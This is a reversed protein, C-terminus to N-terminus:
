KVNLRCMPCKTSNKTLWEKLCEKHFIHNCKLIINCNNLLKDLCIHCDNELDNKNYITLNDFESETLTENVPELTETPFLMEFMSSVNITILTNNRTEFSNRLRIISNIIINLNYEEEYNM